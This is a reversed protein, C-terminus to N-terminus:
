AHMSLSDRGRARYYEETHICWLKKTWRRNILTQITELKFGRIFLAAIFKTCFDKQVYIKIEKPYISQLLIAPYPSYMDLTILFSVALSARLISGSSWRGSRRPGAHEPGEEGKLRMKGGKGGDAM